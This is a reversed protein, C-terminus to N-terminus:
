RNRIRCKIHYRWSARVWFWPTQLAARQLYVFAVFIHNINDTTQPKDMTRQWPSLTATKCSSACGVVLVKAGSATRFASPGSGNSACSIFFDMRKWHWILLYFTAEILNLKNLVCNLSTLLILITESCLFAGFISACHVFLADGVWFIIRFTACDFDNLAGREIKRNKDSGLQNFRNLEIYRRM